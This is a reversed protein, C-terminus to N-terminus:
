LLVECGGRELTKVAATARPYTRPWEARWAVESNFLVLTKLHLASLHALGEHTLWDSSRLSLIELQQLAAVHKMEDDRLGSCANLQLHVLPMQTLPSLDTIGHCGALFLMRLPLHALHALGASTLYPHFSLNLHELPMAKLHMLADNIRAGGADDALSLHKLKLESLYSLGHAEGPQPNRVLCGQLDLETLPMKRLHVLAPHTVLECGTLILRELPLDALHALGVNTIQSCKCLNLARLQLLSALHALGGDTVQPCEGLDLV